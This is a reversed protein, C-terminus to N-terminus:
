VADVFAPAHEDASSPQPFLTAAEDPTEAVHYILGDCLVAFANGPIPEAPSQGGEGNTVVPIEIM